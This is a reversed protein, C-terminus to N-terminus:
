WLCYINDLSVVLSVISVFDKAKENSLMFVALTTFLVLCKIVHSATFCELVRPFGDSVCLCLETLKFHFLCKLM